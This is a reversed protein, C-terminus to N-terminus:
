RVCTRIEQHVWSIALACDYTIAAGIVVFGSGDPDWGQFLPLDRVAAPVNAYSGYGMRFSDIRDGGVKSKTSVPQNIVLEPSALDLLGGYLQGNVEVDARALVDHYIAIPVAGSLKVGDWRVTRGVPKLVLRANPVDILIDFRNLTQGGILGDLLTGGQALEADPVTQIGETYVPVGGMTLSSTAEGIRAAGTESLMGMGLNLGFSLTKGGPADVPVVLRGDQIRLPVEIPEAVGQAGVVAGSMIMVALVRGLRM